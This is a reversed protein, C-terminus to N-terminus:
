PTGLRRVYFILVGILTIALLLDRITLQGLSQLILFLIIIAALVGALIRAKQTSAQKTKIFVTNILIYFSSFYVILFVLAYPALLTVLPLNYPDTTSLFLLLVLVPLCIKLVPKMPTDLDITRM